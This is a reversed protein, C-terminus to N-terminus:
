ELLLCFRLLIQPIYIIRWHSYLSFCFILNLSLSRKPSAFINIFHSMNKLKKIWLNNSIFLLIGSFILSFMYIYSLGYHSVVLSFSFIICLFSRKSNSLNGNVMLSILLILFFEAIQQRVLSLMETYFVFLTVFFYASLLAVKENTQKIYISYLCLPVLSFLLPCIIKFIWILDLNLLISYVPMLVGISIMSNVNNSLDPDWFSNQVTLRSFYYETNIDWGCLDMSILSYHYLLFISIVYISLPYVNKSISDKFVLFIVVGIIILISIM